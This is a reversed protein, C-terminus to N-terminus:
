TIERAFAQVYSLLEDRLNLVLDDDRDSYDRKLEDNYQRKLKVYDEKKKQSYNPSKDLLKDAITLLTTFIAAFEM